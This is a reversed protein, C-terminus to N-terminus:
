PSEFGPSLLYTSTHVAGILDQNYQDAHEAYANIAQAMATERAIPEDNKTSWWTQSIHGTAKDRYTIAVTQMYGTAKRTPWPTIESGTPTQTIDNFVDGSSRATIARAVKYIALVEARRAAVGLDRLEQYFGNASMGERAAILASPFLSLVRAM